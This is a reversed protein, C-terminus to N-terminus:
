FKGRRGAGMGKGMMPFFESLTIGNDKAWTELETHLSEMAARKEEPTKDKMAEFNADRQTQIEKHKALILQKQAETINGDAVAQTLRQEFRQSMEKQREQRNQEFVQSVDNENLGFRQAIKQILTTHITDEAQVTSVAVISGGIVLISLAVIGFTKNMHEGGKKSQRLKLSPM